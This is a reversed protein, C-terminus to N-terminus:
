MMTEMQRRPGQVAAHVYADEYMYKEHVFLSRNEQEGFRVEHGRSLM